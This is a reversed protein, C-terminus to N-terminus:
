AGLGFARQVFQAQALVDGRPAERAQEKRIM